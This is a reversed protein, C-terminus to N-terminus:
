ALWCVPSEHQATAPAAAAASGVSWEARHSGRCSHDLPRFTAAATKLLPSPSSREAAEREPRQPNHWERQHRHAYSRDHNGHGSHNHQGIGGLARETVADVELALAISAVGGIRKPAGLRYCHLGQHLMLREVSMTTVLLYRAISRQKAFDIAGRIMDLVQECFGWSSEATTNSEFAFRSMEWVDTARPIPAGDLLGPFVKEIMYCEQTPILRICGAVAGCSAISLIYTARADDFEDREEGGATPVNWQLRERFVRHRLRFLQATRETGLTTLSGITLSM